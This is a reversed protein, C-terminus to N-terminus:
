TLVMEKSYRDTTATLFEKTMFLNNKPCVETCQGCQICHGVYVTVTKEERNVEIANAPCVRACMACATCGEPNYGIKGRFGEPVEIPLVLEAKGAAVKELFRTISKPLHRAPFPNTAPKNFLQKLVRPVMPLRFM